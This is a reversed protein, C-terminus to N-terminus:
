QHIFTGGLTDRRYDADANVDLGERKELVKIERKKQGRKRRGKVCENTKKNERETYPSSSPEEEKKKQGSTAPSFLTAPIGL